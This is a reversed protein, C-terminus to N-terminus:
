YMHLTMVEGELLLWSCRELGSPLIVIVGDANLGVAVSSTKANFLSV